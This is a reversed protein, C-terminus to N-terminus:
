IWGNYKAFAIAFQSVVGLLTVGFVLWMQWRKVSADKEEIRAKRLRDLHELGWKIIEIPSREADSHARFQSRFVENPTIADIAANRAEESGLAKIWGPLRKGTRMDRKWGNIRSDTAGLRFLEPRSAVTARTDYEKPLDLRHALGRYTVLPNEDNSALIWITSVMDLDDIETKVAMPFDVYVPRVFDLLQALPVSQGIGKAHSLLAPTIPDPSANDSCLSNLWVEILGLVALFGAPGM